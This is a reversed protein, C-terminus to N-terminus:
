PAIVPDCATPMMTSSSGRALILLAAFTTSPFVPSALLVM